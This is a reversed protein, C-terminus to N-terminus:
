VDVAWVIKRGTEPSFWKIDVTMVPQDLDLHLLVVDGGGICPEVGLVRFRYHREQLRHSSRFSQGIRDFMGVIDSGWEGARAKCAPCTYGHNTLTTHASGNGCAARADHCGDWAKPKRLHTTM